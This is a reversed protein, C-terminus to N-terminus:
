LFTLLGQCGEQVDYWTRQFDRTYWPNAVPRPNETYGMFLSCKCQSDSHFIRKRDRLNGDDMGIFYDYIGRTSRLGTNSGNTCSLLKVM